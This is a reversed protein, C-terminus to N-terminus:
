EKKQGMMGSMMPGMMNMMSSLDPMGGGGGADGNMKTMMGQVSGMLKSIDISGDSLGKQMDTILSSFVGSQMLSGISAMPNSQDIQAGSVSKEVKEIINTLFQDEKNDSNENNRISDQLIKRAQSTPDVLGWITLLHKWIIQANDPTSQKIVTSVDVYVRDSYSIKSDTFLNINKEEMAKQNENFFKRFCDIHKNIPGINVIGTKELLRNYLAISKHRSGFETHIDSIFGVIAKFILISTNDM